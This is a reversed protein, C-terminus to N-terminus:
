KREKKKNLKTILTVSADDFNKPLRRDKRHNQIRRQFETLTRKYICKQPGNKTSFIKSYNLYRKTFRNLYNM